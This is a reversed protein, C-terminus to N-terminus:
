EARRSLDLACEVVILELQVLQDPHSGDRGLHVIGASGRSLNPERCGGGLTVVDFEGRRALDDREGAKEPGVHFPGVVRVGLQFVAFNPQWMDGDTVRKPDVLHVGIAM